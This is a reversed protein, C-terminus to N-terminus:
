MPLTYERAQNWSWGAKQVLDYQTDFVRDQTSEVLKLLKGEKQLKACMKPRYKKWHSLINMGLPSLSVETDKPHNRKASM